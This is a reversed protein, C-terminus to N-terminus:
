QRYMLEFERYLLIQRTVPDLQWDKIPSTCLEVSRRAGQMMIGIKSPLDM